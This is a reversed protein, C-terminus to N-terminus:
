KTGSGGATTGGNKKEERKAKEFHEVIHVKVVLSLSFFFSLFETCFVEFVIKKKKKKKRRRRRCSRVVNDEGESRGKRSARERGKRERL